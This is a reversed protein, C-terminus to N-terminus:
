CSRLATRLGATTRADALGTPTPHAGPPHVAPAAHRSADTAYIGLLTLGGATLLVRRTVNDAGM